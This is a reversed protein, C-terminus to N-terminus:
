EAETLPNPLQHEVRYDRYRELHMRLVSRTPWPDELFAARERLWFEDSSVRPRLADFAEETEERMIRWPSNGALGY